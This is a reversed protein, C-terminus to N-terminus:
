EVVFKLFELRLRDVILFHNFITTFYILANKVMSVQGICDDKNPTNRDVLTIAIFDLKSSATVLCPKQQSMADLRYHSVAKGKSRVIEEPVNYNLQTIATSTRSVDLTVGTVIVTPDCPVSPNYLNLGEAKVVTVFAVSPTLENM